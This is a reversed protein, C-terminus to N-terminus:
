LTRILLPELNERYNRSAPLEKGNTLTVIFEGSNCPSLEKIRDVNVIISRHMRVFRTPNLKAETESLTNRILYSSAGVHLRVYNSAAEIWDIESLNLFVIRGDAKIVIRESESAPKASLSASDLLRCATEARSITLLHAKARVLSKMLRPEDFPKLLYDLANAEFARIAYEDYATTFIVVPAEEPSIRELALFGDGDPMQVDLFLLTPKHKHIAEVTQRVNACEALIQVDTDGALMLGLKKRALPEDDAIITRIRNM